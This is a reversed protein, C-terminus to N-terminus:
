QLKHVWRNHLSTERGSNFYMNELHICSYTRRTEVIRERQRTSNNWQNIGFSNDVKHWSKKRILRAFVTRNQVYRVYKTLLLVENSLSLQKIESEILHQKDTGIIDIFRDMVNKLELYNYMNLMGEEIAGALSISFPIEVGSYHLESQKSSKDEDAVNAFRNWETTKESQLGVIREFLHMLNIEYLPHLLKRYKNKNIIRDISMIMNNLNTILKLPSKKFTINDYVVTKDINFFTTDSEPLLTEKRITPKLELDGKMCILEYMVSQIAHSMCANLNGITGTRYASKFLIKMMYLFVEYSDQHKKSVKRGESINTSIRSYKLIWKSMLQPTIQSLINSYLMRERMRNIAITFYIMESPVIIKNFPPKDNRVGMINGMLKNDIKNIYHVFLIMKKIKLYQGNNSNAQIFTQIVLEYFRRSFDNILLFLLALFKSKTNSPVYYNSELQNTDEIKRVLGKIFADAKQLIIDEDNNNSDTYKRKTQSNKMHNMMTDNSRTNSIDRSLTELLLGSDICTSNRVVVGLIDELLPNTNDESILKEKLKISNETEELVRRIDKNLGIAFDKSTLKDSITIISNLYEYRTNLIVTCIATLYNIMTQSLDSSGISSPISKLLNLYRQQYKINNDVINNHQNKNEHSHSKNTTITGKLDQQQNSELEIQQQQQQQQINDNSYLTVIQVQPKNQIKQDTIEEENHDLIKPLFYLDIFRPGDMIKSPFEETSLNRMYIVEDTVPIANIALAWEALRTCHRATNYCRIVQSLMHECGMVIFKIANEADQGPDQSQKQKYRQSLVDPVTKLLNSIYKDVMNSVIENAFAGQNIHRLYQVARRCEVASPIVKQKDGEKAKLMAKMFLKLVKANRKKADKPPEQVLRIHPSGLVAVRNYNVDGEDGPRRKPGALAPVWPPPPLRRASGSM